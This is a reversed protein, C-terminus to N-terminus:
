FLLFTLLILSSFKIFSSFCDLLPMIESKKFYVFKNANKEYAMTPFFEASLGDEFQCKLEYDDGSNQPKYSLICTAGRYKSGDVLLYPYITLPTNLPTESELSGMISLEHVGRESTCRDLASGAEFIYSITPYCQVNDNKVINNLGIVENWKDLEFTGDGTYDTLLSVRGDLPFLIVDITCKMQESESTSRLPGENPAFITCDAFAYKPENLKMQFSYDKDFGETSISIYFNFGFPEEETQMCEYPSIIGGEIKVYKDTSCKVISLFVFLILSIIKYNM